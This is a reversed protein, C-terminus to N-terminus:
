AVNYFGLHHFPLCTRNLATHECSHPLEFRGRPVFYLIKFMSLNLEFMKIIISVVVFFVLLDDQFLDGLGRGALLVGGASPGVFVVESCPSSVRLIIGKPPSPSIPFFIHRRSYLSSM